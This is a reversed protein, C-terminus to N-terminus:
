AGELARRVRREIEALPVSNGLEKRLRENEMEREDRSIWVAENAAVLGLAAQLPITGDAATAGDPVVVMTRREHQMNVGVLRIEGLM